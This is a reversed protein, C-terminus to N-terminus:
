KKKRGHTKENEAAGPDRRTPGALTAFTLDLRDRSMNLGDVKLEINFVAQAL